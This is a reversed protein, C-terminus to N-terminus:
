GTRSTLFEAIEDCIEDVARHDTDLALDAVAEYFPAREALLKALQARVNGLAVPRAANLGTRSIANPASVKLWIVLREQLDAVTAPDTVAGGGLAVVCEPESLASVVALRELRRFEPEGLLLLVDGASMGAAEAVENDTDRLGWGLREALMEGVTSKGAGPVGVLVVGPGPPRVPAQTM